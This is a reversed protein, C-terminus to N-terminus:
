PRSQRSRPSSVPKPFGFHLSTTFYPSTNRIGWFDHADWFSQLHYHGDKKPLQPLNYLIISAGRSRFWTETWNPDWEWTLKQSYRRGKMVSRGNGLMVCTVHYEAIGLGSFPFHIIREQLFDNRIIGTCPFLHPGTKYLLYIMVFLDDYIFWRYFRYIPWKGYCVTSDGPLKPVHRNHNGWCESRPPRESNREWSSSRRDWSTSWRLWARWRRRQRRPLRWSRRGNGDTWLFLQISTYTCCIYIYIYIHLYTSIYAYTFIYIYIHTHTKCHQVLICQYKTLSIIGSLSLSASTIISIGWSPTMQSIQSGLPWAM